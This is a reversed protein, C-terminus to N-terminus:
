TGPLWARYCAYVGHFTGTFRAPERALWAGVADAALWRGEAIEGPDPRPEADCCGLYVRVFEGGTAASAPLRALELLAVDRLGLEEALERPAADEYREGHDVHGAASTDWLGPACDKHEARRQLYLRGRGDHILIHVARHLLRRAHVEARSAVGTVRDEEDVVDLLDAAVDCARM